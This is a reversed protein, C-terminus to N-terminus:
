FISYGLNLLFTLVSNNFLGLQRLLDASIVNGGGCQEIAYNLLDLMDSDSLFVETPVDRLAYTVTQIVTTTISAIETPNHAILAWADIHTIIQYLDFYYVTHACMHAVGSLLLFDLIM